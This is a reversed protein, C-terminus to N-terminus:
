IIITEIILYNNNINYLNNIGNSNFDNPMNIPTNRYNRFNMGNRKWSNNSNNILNTIPQNM